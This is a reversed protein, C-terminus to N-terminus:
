KMAISIMAPASLGLGRGCDTAYIVADPSAWAPSYANSDATMLARVEGTALNKMTLQWVGHILQTFVLRSEDPSLAFGGIDTYSTFFPTPSAGPKLKFLSTGARTKAAFILDGSPLFAVSRVDYASNTLRKAAFPALDSPEAAKSAAIWISGVGRTEQLFAITLGDLSVAPSEANDVVTARDSARVIRSGNADAVEILISQDPAVAFSLQDSSDSRDKEAFVERGQQDIVRYGVPTMAVSLYGHSLPRLDTALYPASALPLRQQMEETRHAFHHLYATTSVVVACCTLIALAIAPSKALLHQEPRRSQWLQFFFLAYLLLGLWLRAFGVALIMFGTAPPNVLGVTSMLLYLAIVTIAAKRAHRRLLFDVCLTVPLIMVVFHYSSPVPSLVLLALLFAAWEMQEAERYGPRILALLPVVIAAQWLPYLVAYVAPADILPTPNLSPEFLFLRHFLASGSAARWHYPDLVEGRLSSPLIQFAYIRLVDHGMIAASAAVISISALFTSALATGRRKWLFYICFLLPYIKLAAAFAICCGCLIDRNRRHSAWALVLFLLVLLHMQGYLFNTRLPLIALLSLLYVRRRRLSTSRHLVETTIGLFCLNAIIWIRKATLASFAALPLIPLASFPTLGAFGVLPQAINWHDKIRQLWVWDYIRDLSYGEHVLRAVLYYNPFDTNLVRWAPIIGKVFLLLALALCVVAEIRPLLIQISTSSQNKV